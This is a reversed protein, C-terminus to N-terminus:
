NKKRELHAMTEEETSFGTGLAWNPADPFLRWYEAESEANTRLEKELAARMKSPAELLMSQTVRVRVRVRVRADM